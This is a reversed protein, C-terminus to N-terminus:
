IISSETAYRIETFRNSLTSKYVVGGTLDDPPIKKVTSIKVQCHLVHTEWMKHIIIYNFFLLYRYPCASLSVTQQPHFPIILFLHITCRAQRHLAQCFLLCQWPVQCRHRSASGTNSVCSSFRQGATPPPFRIYMEFIVGCPSAASSPSSLGASTYFNHLVPPILDQVGNRLRVLGSVSWPRFIVFLWIIGIFWVPVCQSGHQQHGGTMSIPISHRWRHFLSPVKAFGASRGDQSLYLSFTTTTERHWM